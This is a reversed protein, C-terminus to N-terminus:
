ALTRCLSAKDEEYLRRLICTCIKVHLSSVVLGQFGFSRQGGDKKCGGFALV